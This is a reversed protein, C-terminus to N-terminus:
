VTRRWPAAQQNDSQAIIRTVRGLSELFLVLEGDVDLRGIIKPEVYHALMATPNHMKRSDYRFKSTTEHKDFQGKAERVRLNEIDMDSIALLDGGRTCIGAVGLLEHLRRIDYNGLMRRFFVYAGFVPRETEITMHRLRHRTKSPLTSLAPHRVIKARPWWVEFGERTLSRKAVEHSNPSARAIWWPAMSHVEQTDPHNMLTKLSAPTFNAM